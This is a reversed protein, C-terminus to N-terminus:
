DTSFGVLENGERDKPGLGEVLLGVVFASLECSKGLLGSSSVVCSTRGSSRFTFPPDLTASWNSPLEEVVVPSMELEAGFGRGATAFLDASTLFTECDVMDELPTSPFAAALGDVGLFNSIRVSRGTGTADGGSDSPSLFDVNCVGAWPEFIGSVGLLVLSFVGLGDFGIISLGAFGAIVVGAELTL